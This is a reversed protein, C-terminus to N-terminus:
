PRASDLNVFDEGMMFSGAELRVFDMGTREDIFESPLSGKGVTQASPAAMARGARQLIEGSMAALEGSEQEFWAECIEILESWPYTRLHKFLAIKSRKSASKLRLRKIFPEPVFPEAEALCREVFGGQMEVTDGKLLDGGPAM